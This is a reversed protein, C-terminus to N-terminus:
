PSVGEEELDVSEVEADFHEFLGDLADLAEFMPSADITEVTMNTTSTSTGSASAGPRYPTPTPRSPETPSVEHPTVESESLDEPAMSPTETSVLETPVPALDGLEVDGDSMGGCGGVIALASIAAATRIPHMVTREEVTIVM